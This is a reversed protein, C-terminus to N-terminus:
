SSLILTLYRVRACARDKRSPSTQCTVASVQMFALHRVELRRHARLRKEKNIISGVHSKKGKNGAWDAM